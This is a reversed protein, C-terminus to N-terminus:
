EVSNKVITNCIFKSRQIKIRDRIKPFNYILNSVLAQFAIARIEYYNNDTQDDVYYLITLTLRLQIKLMKRVHFHGIEHVGSVTKVCSVFRYYGLLFESNFLPYRHFGLM